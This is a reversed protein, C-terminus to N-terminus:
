YSKSVLFSICFEETMEFKDTIQHKLRFTLDYDNGNIVLGEVYVVVILANGQTHLVYINHNSECRKFGLNVFFRDIKEYWDWPDKKLGYLSKNLHCVLTPNIVFIPPPDTYIEEALDGYLFFLKVDM